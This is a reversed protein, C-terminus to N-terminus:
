PQQRHSLWQIGANAPIVIKLLHWEHRLGKFRLATTEPRQQIPAEQLAGGPV